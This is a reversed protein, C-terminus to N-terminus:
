AIERSYIGRKCNNCTTGRQGYSDCDGCRGEWSDDDDDVDGEETCEEWILGDGISFLTVDGYRHEEISTLLETCLELDAPNDRGELSVALFDCLSKATLGAPCAWGNWFTRNKPFYCEYVAGDEIRCYGQELQTTKTIRMMEGMGHTFDFGKHDHVALDSIVKFEDAYEDASGGGGDEFWSRMTDLSVDHEIRFANQAYHREYGDRWEVTYLEITKM